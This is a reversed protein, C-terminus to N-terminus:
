SPFCTLPAFCDLYDLDGNRVTPNQSSLTVTDEFGYLSATDAAAAPKAPGTHAIYGLNQSQPIANFNM